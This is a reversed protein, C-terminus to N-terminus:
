AIIKGLNGGSMGAVNVWCYPLGLGKLWAPGASEKLMAITAASGALICLDAVVSVSALHNVPWGSRPNLIHGYRIGSLEICREYDGSSALAGKELMLTGMFKGPQRPHRLSIAWPRGDPHPGIIKIDGGLNILGHCVEAEWCLAAIRDVAYEKVAGGLDLEMGAQPFELEPARWRLRHWGIRDLLAAIDEAEPATGTDFRWAHRLLGSTIDFLGESEQYCTEAYNLLATTEEDVAIVGGVAAVRNIASLLSDSRYRSYRTELREVERIARSVMFEARSRNKAYLRIECPSGMANFGRQIFFPRSKTM